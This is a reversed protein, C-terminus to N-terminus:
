GDARHKDYYTLMHQYCEGVLRVAEERSVATGSTSGLYRFHPLTATMIWSWKGADPGGRIRHVSGIDTEQLSNSRRGPKADDFCTWHSEPWTGKPWAESTKMWRLKVLAGVLDTQHHALGVALPQDNERDGM